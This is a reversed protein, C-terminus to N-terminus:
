ARVKSITPAGVVGRTRIAGVGHAGKRWSFLRRITSGYLVEKITEDMILPHDSLGIGPIAGSAQLLANDAIIRNAKTIEEAKRACITTERAIVDAHEWDVAGGFAVKGNYIFVVRGNETTRVQLKHDSM